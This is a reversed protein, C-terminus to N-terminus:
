AGATAATEVDEAEVKAEVGAPEAGAPEAGAPEAGAAEDAATEAGGAKAEPIPGETDSREVFGVAYGREEM